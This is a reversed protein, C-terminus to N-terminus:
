IEDWFDNTEFNRDQNGNLNISLSNDKDISHLYKWKEKTNMNDLNSYLELNKERLVKSKVIIMPDLEDKNLNTLRKGTDGVNSQIKPLVM